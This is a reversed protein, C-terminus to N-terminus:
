GQAEQSTDAGILCTLIEASWNVHAAFITKPYGAQILDLTPGDLRRFYFATRTQNDGFYKSRIMVLVFSMEIHKKGCM